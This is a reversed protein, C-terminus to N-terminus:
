LGCLGSCVFRAAQYKGMHILADFLRIDIDLNRIEDCGAALCFHEYYFAKAEAITLEKITQETVKPYLTKYTKLSVGYKTAGRSDDPDNVFGGEIKIAWSFAREFTERSMGIDEKLKKEKLIYVFGGSKYGFL